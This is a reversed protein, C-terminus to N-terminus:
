HRQKMIRGIQVDDQRQKIVQRKDFKRKGRALAFKLKIKGHNNYVSLPVLTLGDAHVKEILRNIQKRKVLLKRSARSDYDSVTAHKYLPIAANTLFLENDHAAVFSGKLSMHGQKISKVEYGKLVLGAEIEELHEYDFFAKKNRALTSM